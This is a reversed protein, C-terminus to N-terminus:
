ETGVQSGRVLRGTLAGTPQGERMVVKGSVLTAVYGDIRQMLRRGGAPLDYVGEPAHLNLHDFDIVNIDAKADPRIVGRDNLGIARANDSTLRKIAWPLPVRAGRRRDRAWHTLMYTVASADRLIGVHAGGDGLGIL